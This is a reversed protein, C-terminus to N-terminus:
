VFSFICKSHNHLHKSISLWRHVNSLRGFISFIISLRFPITNKNSFILIFYFLVKVHTLSGAFGPAREHLRHRFGTLYTYKLESPDCSANSMENEHLIFIIM